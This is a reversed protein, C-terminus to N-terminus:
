NWKNLISISYPLKVQEMIKQASIEYGIITHEKIFNIKKTTCSHKHQIEIVYKVRNTRHKDIVAIDFIYLVKLEKFNNKLEWLTPIHYKSKVDDLKDHKKLWEEWGCDLGILIGDKDKCVPYESYVNFLPKEGHTELELPINSLGKFKSGIRIKKRLWGCMVIKAYRHLYSEVGM